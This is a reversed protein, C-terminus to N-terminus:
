PFPSDSWRTDCRCQPATRNILVVGVQLCADENAQDFGLELNSYALGYDYEYVGRVLVPAGILVRLQNALVVAAALTVVTGVFIYFGPLGATLATLYAVAATGLPLTVWIWRLTSAVGKLRKFRQWRQDVSQM